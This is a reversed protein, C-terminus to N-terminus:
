VFSTAMKHTSQHGTLWGTIKKKVSDDSLGTLPSCTILQILDAPFEEYADDLILISEIEARHCMNQISPWRQLNPDTMGVYYPGLTRLSKRILAQDLGQIMRWSSHVAILLDEKFAEPAAAIAEELHPVWRFLDRSEITEQTIHLNIGEIATSPHLVGDFDLFIAKSM